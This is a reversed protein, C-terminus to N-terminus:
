VASERHGSEGAAPWRSRQLTGDSEVLVRDGSCLPAPGLPGLLIRAEIPAVDLVLIGSRRAAALLSRASSWELVTGVVADGSGDALAEEVSSVIVGLAALRSRVARARNSLVAVRAGGVRVPPPPPAALRPPAEASAFIQIREGHWWGGGPPLDADFREGALALLQHEQRNSARLLLVDDFADRLAALGDTPRRAAVIVRREGARIATQLAELLRRREEETCRRLLLDLDDIVLPGPEPLDDMVADWAEEPDAPGVIRAEGLQAAMTRLAGSRGSGTAGLVLVSRRELAVVIQSQEEPRDVIGLLIRRDSGAPPLPIVAPLPDRWPRHVAVAGDGPSAAGAIDDGRAIAAQVLRERGGSAVICRGPIGHPLRAAADSGILARSDAVDQVRLAIRLGCNAAVADRVVGIPRQTCLILHVGLSRGRATIDAFARHLEPARELVVACEDVVIVLRALVGDPLRAIDPVGHEALVVERRRLEAAVSAFARAAGGPDLDTIVGTVHPLEALAAFGAGGKFDALLFTVDAPSHRAALAVIWAILLESKGSGTTGGIIAHPGDAVLDIELLGEEAAGLVARLGTEGTRRTLAGLEGLLVRAPLDAAAGGVSSEALSAAFVRSQEASVYDVRVKETAGPLVRGVVRDGERGGLVVVVRCSAPLLSPDDALVIVRDGVTSEGSQEVVSLCVPATTARVHPLTSLGHWAVGSPLRISLAGPAVLEACQVVLGRVFARVLVAPGAIGIGSSLAVTLPVNPLVPGAAARGSSTVLREGDGLTIELTAASRRWRADVPLARDLIALPGPSALRLAELERERAAALAIEYEIVEQDYREAEVRMSRRRVRAGDLYSAVAVVPGLAALALTYPSSTLLYLVLSSLVPATAAIWPFSARGPAAPPSPARPPDDASRITM